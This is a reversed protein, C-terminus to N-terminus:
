ADDTWAQIVIAALEDAPGRLEPVHRGLSRLRIAAASRQTPDAADAFARAHARASELEGVALDDVARILRHEGVVPTIDTILAVTLLDGTEIAATAADFASQADTVWTYVDDLVAVGRHRLLALIAAHQQEPEMDHGALQDITQDTCLEDAHEALFRKSAEWTPTNIWASLLSQRQEEDGLEAIVHELGQRGIADLVAAQHDLVPHNGELLRLTETTARLAPDQLHEANARLLAELATWNGLRARWTYLLDLHEPALTATAWDPLSADRIGVHEATSRVLLRTGPSDALEAARRLQAAARETQDHRHLFLAYHTTLEAQAADTDAATITQHWLHDAGATDDDALLLDGYNHLSGALGTLFAAPEAHALQRRIAVAETIPALAAAPDGARRWQVALNHLAAALGPLFAAPNAHALQRYLDVAETNSTLAGARDGNNGQQVSLGILSTALDPAFAAPEAHALQRRIAVAETISTLAAAPDETESQRSSLNHLSRALDPLFVDPNAHVLQRHLDVAETITTLAGAPDDAEGQQVSLSNLSMALGPLFADPDAQALHRRIAVAETISTLAAAPDGTESQRNSLNHLANALGPLFADPNAHALHRRIAVTETITTLAAVRDGTDGQYVALNNLSMALDPLFADADIRALHRRIAVAETISALAAVPDGADSQQVALNNLSTALNPLFADPDAHALQRHLDVAETVSTLAGARDGNDDQHVALNTLSMALDPLFAGPYARALQRHLDVAETISTLAGARDGTERQPVSLNNLATALDPLFADRDVHALQRRIAVAETMSSLAGARDGIGNQQVALNSLSTALNPLFADANAHALQRYLEIAETISTLGAARDGVGRQQNSLNNLSSALGPLFAAPNAHALQRQLDVAETISSLAGARDGAEGQLLSLNNLSTALDPLFAAPNAAALEQHLDVAETISALAAARDGVGRQQNSLNNLSAALGPLFEDPDVDALRRDLDVAETISTLAAARDGVEGQRNSLSNLSAALGPVLADPNADALRRHLEVAETISTLAAARDGVDSQANSLNHLSTALDPLFADPNADALQRHLDVAETILVLAGDRDGATTLRFGALGLLGALHEPETATHTRANRLRTTDVNAGLAALGTHRHPIAASLDDLPLPTDPANTLQTLADLAAGGLVAAVNLVLPWRSPQARLHDALQRAALRQNREGARNFVALARVIDDDATLTALCAELLSPDSGTERLLLHDGVPDPRIALPEGARPRLCATLTRGIDYRRDPGAREELPRLATHVAAPAPTLLTLCAAARRLLDAPPAASQSIQRWAKAWYREEHELVHDYLEDQSAPLRGQEQAAFWGLLVFDLTTWRAASPRPLTAPDVTDLDAGGLAAYARRFVARGNPHRDPLTLLRPATLQGDDRLATAIETLWDGDFSRATLLVVAPADTRRGVAQLVRQAAEVNADAYDVVVLLPSLVSGLWDVDPGAAKPRLVGSYWGDRATAAALELALRTKGSGGAGTLVCLATQGADLTQRCLNRLITFEDRGQFPVLGYEARVLQLASDHEGTLTAYPPRLPPHDPATGPDYPDQRHVTVDLGLRWPRGTTHRYGAEVAEALGVGAGPLTTGPLPVCFGVPDVVLLSGATDGLDRALLDALGAPPQTWWGHVPADPYHEDEGIWFGVVAHAAGGAEVPGLVILIPRLGAGLGAAALTVALDLCTGRRPTRLVQDPPRIVQRGRDDSPAEHAYEIGIAALRRYVEGLRDRVGAGSAGPSGALQQVREPLVYRALAVDEGTLSWRPWNRTM